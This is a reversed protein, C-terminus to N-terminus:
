ASDHPSMLARVCSCSDSSDPSTLRHSAPTASVAGAYSSRSPTGSGGGVFALAFFSRLSESSESDSSSGVMGCTLYCQSCAACRKTGLGGLGMRSCACYTALVAVTAVKRFGYELIAM